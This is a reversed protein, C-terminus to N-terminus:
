NQHPSTIWSSCHSRARCSFTMSATISLTTGSAAIADLRRPLNSRRGVGDTSAVLVPHDMQKLASVDFLGGFSGIGALVSDNYTARVADKMLEVARNGADIDVGSSAYQSKTM